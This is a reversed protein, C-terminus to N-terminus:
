DKGDDISSVCVVRYGFHECFVSFSSWLFPVHFFSVFIFWLYGCKM